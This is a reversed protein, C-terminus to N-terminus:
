PISNLLREELQRAMNKCAIEVAQSENFGPGASSFSGGQLVTGNRDVLHCTLILDCTILDSDLETQRRFGYLAKGLLIYDVGSLRAAEKLLQANGAYLDDFLGGTHLARLDALNAVLHFRSAPGLFEHLADSVSGNGQPGSSEILLAVNSGKPSVSLNRNILRRLREEKSPVKLEASLRRPQDFTPKRKELHRLNESDKNAEVIKPGHRGLGVSFAALSVLSFVIALVFFLKPSWFSLAPESTSLSDALAGFVDAPASSFSPVPAAAAPNAGPSGEAEPSDEVPAFPLEPQSSSWDSVHGPKKNRIEEQVEIPCHPLIEDLGVQLSTKARLVQALTVGQEDTSGDETHVIMNRTVRASNLGWIDSFKDSRAKILDAFVLRKDATIARLCRELDRALRIVVQCDPHDFELTNRGQNRM